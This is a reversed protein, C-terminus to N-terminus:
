GEADDGKAGSSDPTFFVLLPGEAFYTHSVTIRVQDSRIKPDSVQIRSAAVLHLVVDAPEALIVSHPFKKQEKGLTSASARGADTGSLEEAAWRSCDLDM